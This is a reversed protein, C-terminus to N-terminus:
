KDVQAVFAIQEIGLYGLESSWYFLAEVESFGCDRIEDLMEWGFHYFALCGRKNLPDGHYEPCLLHEIEGDDRVRARMLNYKNNLVFPVTFLIRGNPKLIRSCEKFARIYNPIHEFVDFSLIFDFKHDDWTLKTLTENRVGDNSYTGYPVMDGLYESGETNYCQGKLWRYLPTKQESVYIALRNDGKWEQEFLQIAARMRNNLGCSECLLHERWNPIQDGNEAETSYAYSTLLRRKRACTYCYAETYFQKGTQICQKEIAIRESYVKTQTNIYELYADYNKVRVVDLAPGAQRMKLNPTKVAFGLKSLFWTLRMKM